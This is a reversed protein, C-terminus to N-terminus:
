LKIRSQDDCGQMSLKAGRMAPRGACSWDIQQRQTVVAPQCYDLQLDVFITLVDKLADIVPPTHFRMAAAAVDVRGLQKTVSRDAIFRRQNIQNRRRQPKM